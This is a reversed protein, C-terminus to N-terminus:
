ETGIDWHYIQKDPRHLEAEALIEHVHKPHQLKEAGLSRRLYGEAELLEFRNVMIVGSGQADIIKVKRGLDQLKIASAIAEGISEFLAHTTGTTQNSVIYRKM